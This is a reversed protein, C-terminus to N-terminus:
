LSPTINFKKKIKLIATDCIKKNFIILLIVYLYFYISSGFGLKKLSIAYNIFTKIGRHRQIALNPYSYKSMDKLIDKKINVKEKDEVYELVKIYSGMFNLSNRVTIEGPDYLSSESPSNGFFPVSEERALVLYHDFYGTDYNLLIRGLVYMQYLLTGDLDSTDFKKWINKNVIWGSILVSKRFVKIFSQISPNFYQNNKFYRYQEIRGDAFEYKHSKLVFALNSNEFLFNILKDLSNPIFVDDDGMFIIYDGEAYDACIRLNHDFGVNEINEYYKVNISNKEIFTSVVQNIKKRLPSKDEVIIVEFNNVNSTDISNLLRLLTEPRNYAPICISIKIDNNM